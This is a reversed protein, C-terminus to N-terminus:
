TDSAPEAARALARRAAVLEDPPFLATWDIGYVREIVEVEARKGRAFRVATLVISGLRSKSRLAEIERQFRRTMADALRDFEGLERFRGFRVLARTVLRGTGTLVLTPLALAGGLTQLWWSDSLVVIAIALVLVVYGARLVWRLRRLLYRATCYRALLVAEARTLRGDLYDTVDRGIMGPLSRGTVREHAM